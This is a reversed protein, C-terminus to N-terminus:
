DCAEVPQRTLKTDALFSFIPWSTGEDIGTLSSRLLSDAKMIARFFPPGCYEVHTSQDEISTLLTRTKTENREREKHRKPSVRFRNRQMPAMSHDSPLVPVCV